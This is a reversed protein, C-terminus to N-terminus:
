CRRHFGAGARGPRLPATPSDTAQHPANQLVRPEVTRFARQACRSGPHRLAACGRLIGCALTRAPRAGRGGARVALPMQAGASRDGGGAPSGPAPAADRRAPAPCIIISTLKGSSRSRSTGRSCHGSEGGRVSGVRPPAEAACVRKKYAFWAGRLAGLRAGWTRTAVEAGPAHVGRRCRPHGSRVSCLRRRGRCASGFTSRV